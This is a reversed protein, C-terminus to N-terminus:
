KNRNFSVLATLFIGIFVGAFVSIPIFFWPIM